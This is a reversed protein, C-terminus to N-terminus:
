WGLKWFNDISGADFIILECIKYTQTVLLNLTREITKVDNFTPMIVSIKSNLM